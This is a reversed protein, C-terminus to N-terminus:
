LYEKLKRQPGNALTGKELERLVESKKRVAEQNTKCYFKKRQGPAVSVEVVWRDREPVYYISGENHGRRKDARCWSPV